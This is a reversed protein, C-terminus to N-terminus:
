LMAYCLLAYCLWRLAYCLHSVGLPCGLSCSMLCWLMSLHNFDCSAGWLQEPFVWSAALAARVDVDFRGGVSSADCFTSPNPLLHEPESPPARTQVATGFESPSRMLEHLSPNVKSLLCAMAYCVRTRPPREEPLPPRAVM